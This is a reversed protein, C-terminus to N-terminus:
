EDKDEKKKLKNLIMNLVDFVATEKCLLLIFLYAAFFCIASIVLAVFVHLELAKVWISCIAAVLVALAAVHWRVGAFVKKSTDRIALVQYILVALEAVLTGLAAGAAGYIPIAIANLILDAVAGCITSYLVIKEKGLPVMIQLGLINTIGIFLLTPMIIQMPLVAAGFADGSLLVIGEQAYIIFYVVCPIAILVVLAMAKKAMRYFEELHGKDVYYSARPLLVMSVSTVMNVLVSKIKVAATYYGVETDGKMFGLMVNDLNTYITTAISMAFFVLVMKIHRRLNYGGVPHLNVYKRLNVFNLVNSASAAFISIGGYIMYDEKETILFFMAFLAVAKCILSRVTIYSYQELAKYLWEVGLANLLITASIMVLLIKEEAFKPVMGIALALAAYSIICTIGNIIMIEQVVKSLEKRDDRVKACARIGYTPIGLQAFMSFYTIVSTAFTVKGVGEAGIVRSVYPFTIIPFIISSVTLLLNMLMNVKLSTQKVTQKM